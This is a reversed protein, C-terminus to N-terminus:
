QRTGTSPRAPGAPAREGLLGMGTRAAGLYADRARPDVAPRPRARRSVDALQQAGDIAPRGVLARDLTVEDADAQRPALAPRLDGDPAELGLPRAASRDLPRALQPGAVRHAVLRWSVPRLHFPEAVSRDCCAPSASPLRFRSACPLAPAARVVGPRALVALRGPDPLCSPFTYSLFWHWLRVLSGGAGFRASMPRIAACARM